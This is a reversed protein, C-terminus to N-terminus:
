RRKLSNEKFTTTCNEELDDEKHRIQIRGAMKISIKKRLSLLGLKLDIRISNLILVAM